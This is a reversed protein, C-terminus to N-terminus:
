DVLELTMVHCVYEKFHNIIIIKHVKESQFIENSTVKNTLIQNALDIAYGGSTDHEGTVDKFGKFPIKSENLYRRIDAYYSNLEIENNHGLLFATNNIKSTDLKIDKLLSEWHNSENLNTYIQSSTFKVKGPMSRESLIFFTVSEGWKIPFAGDSELGSLGASNHIEINFETNEEFVGALIVADPHQLLFLEADNLVNYLTLGQNVHTVNYTNNGTKLAIQGNITNHTSQIFISPNLATEKYTDIDSLFQEIKSISGKGTGTIIADFRDQNIKKLVRLGCGIGSKILKSLRRMENREFLDSFDQDEMELYMKNGLQSADKSHPIVSHIALIYM